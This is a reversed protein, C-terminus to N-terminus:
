YEGRVRNSLMRDARPRSRTMRESRRSQACARRLVLAGIAWAIPVTAVITVMPVRRFGTSLGHFGLLTAGLVLSLAAVVHALLWLGRAYTEQERCFAHCAAVWIALIFAAGLLPAVTGRLGELGLVVLPAIVVSEGSIITIVVVDGLVRCPRGGEDALLAEADWVNGCEPCVVESAMTLGRLNYECGPCALDRGIRPEPNVHPLEM